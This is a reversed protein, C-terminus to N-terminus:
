RRSRVRTGDVDTTYIKKVLRGESMREMHGNPHLTKEMQFHFVNLKSRIFTVNIIVM